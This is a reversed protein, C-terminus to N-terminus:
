TTVSWQVVPRAPAWGRMDGLPRAEALEIRLLQGGKEDHWRAFLAETELTVGNAVLRCGNPLCNWLATLLDDSAGGGIFVADPDPLDVLADASPAVRIDLRHSLGFAEANKRINAARDERQEVAIARTNSTALCWEVSISGSGAGLDWLVQGPHPALASLTLARAPRKTIQGDSAFLDDSLGSARSLGAAGAPDIAVAVPHQVEAIDYGEAACERITERPGGLAELVHLRSQGFGQKSLWKALQSVAEGDRLTAIIKQEPALVPVLREFPAAHLGLCLTEELRWGLRSTALAFTSPAPHAIWEDKELKAALTSGAGFWFPDGSALVVTPKGRAELVPAISYPVPWPTGKDTAGLLELHRPGGIIIEAAEIADRSALSLGNLGNETIGVITLWPDSM